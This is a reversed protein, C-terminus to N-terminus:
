IVGKSLDNRIRRKMLLDISPDGTISQNRGRFKQRNEPDKMLDREYLSLIVKLPKGINELIAKLNDIGGNLLAIDVTDHLSDMVRRLEKEAEDISNSIDLRLSATENGPRLKTLQRKLFRTLVNHGEKTIQTMITSAEKKAAAENTKAVADSVIKQLTNTATIKGHKAEITDLMEKRLEHMRAKIVRREADKPTTSYHGAFQIIQTAFPEGLGAGSMVRAENGMRIVIDKANKRSVPTEVPATPKPSPQPKSQPQEETPVNEQQPTKQEKLKERGIIEELRTITKHVSSFSYRASQFSQILNPTNNINITLVENQFNRLSYFLDACM